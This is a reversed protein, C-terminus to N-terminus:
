SRASRGNGHKEFTTTTSLLDEKDATEQKQHGSLLLIDIDVEPVGGMVMNKLHPPPQPYTKRTQVQKKNNNLTKDSM